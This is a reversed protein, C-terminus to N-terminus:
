HGPSSVWDRLTQELSTDLVSPTKLRRPIADCSIQRPKDPCRLPLVAFRTGENDIKRKAASQRKRRQKM